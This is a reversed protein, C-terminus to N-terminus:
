IINTEKLVIDITYKYADRIWPYISVYEHLMEDSVKGSCRIAEEDISSCDDNACAIAYELFRKQDLPHCSDPHAGLFVKLLEEKSKM